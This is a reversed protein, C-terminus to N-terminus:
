QLNHRETTGLGIRGSSVSLQIVATYGTVRRQLRRFITTTLHYYSLIGM